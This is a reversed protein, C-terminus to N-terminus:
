LINFSGFDYAMPLKVAPRASVKLGNSASRTELKTFTMPFTPYGTQYTGSIYSLQGLEEFYALYLMSDVVYSGQTGDENEWTEEYGFAAM